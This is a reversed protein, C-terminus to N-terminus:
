STPRESQDDKEFEQNHKRIRVFSRAALFAIGGLTAVLAISLANAGTLSGATGFLLTGILAAKGGCCIVVVPAAVILALLGGTSSDKMYPEPIVTTPYFRLKM